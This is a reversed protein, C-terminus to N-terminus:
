SDALVSQAQRIWADAPAAWPYRHEGDPWILQLAPFDDGEYYWCASGLYEEYHQRSVPRFTCSYGELIDDHNQGALYSGGARVSAGACNLMVHMTDLPLGFVLEPHGFHQYLGMTFAFAPGKDDERVMIVHWGYTAIDARM